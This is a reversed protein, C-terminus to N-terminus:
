SYRHPVRSCPEMAAGARFAELAKALFEDESEGSPQFAENSEIQGNIANLQGAYSYAPDPTGSRIFAACQESMDSSVNNLMGATQQASLYAETVNVISTFSNNTQYMSFVMFMAIVLGIFILLLNLCYLHVGKSQKRGTGTNRNEM